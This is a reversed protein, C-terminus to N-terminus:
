GALSAVRFRTGIYAYGGFINGMKLGALLQPIDNVLLHRALRREFLAESKKLIEGKMSIKLGSNERTIWTM